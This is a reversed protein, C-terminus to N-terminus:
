RFEMGIEVAVVPINEGVEVLTNEAAEIPISAVAMLIGEPIDVKAETIM